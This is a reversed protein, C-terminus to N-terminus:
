LIPLKGTLIVSANYNLIMSRKYSQGSSGELHSQFCFKLFFMWDAIIVVCCMMGSLSVIGSLVVSIYSFRRYYLKTASWRPATFWLPWAILPSSMSSVSLSQYLLLPLLLILSVFIFCLIAFFLFFVSFYSFQQFLIFIIVITM